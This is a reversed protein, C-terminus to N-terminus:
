DWQLTTRGDKAPALTKHNELYGKFVEDFTGPTATVSAADYYDAKLTGDWVAVKYTAADDIASGDSLTAAIVKSGLDNWPAYTTKLGSVAYVCDASKGGSGMPDDLAAKLQRGTMSVTVLTSKSDLSRPKLYTVKSDTIDGKYIRMVNGRYTVDDLVLAIDAGTKERFVDAFLESTELISFNESASALGTETQATPNDEAQKASADYDAIAQAATKTGATMDKIGARINITGSFVNAGVGDLDFTDKASIHGQDIVSQLSTLTAVGPVYPTTNSSILASTGIYTKQGETSSIYNVFEKIIETQKDSHSQKPVSTWYSTSKGVYADAATQGPFAMTAFQGDSPIEDLSHSIMAIKGAKFENMRTTASYDFNDSTIIGAAIFRQALDYLPEMHGTFTAKGASYDHYWTRNETGAMIQSYTMAELSASLEKPYKANINFPVVSGGTDATIRACLAIFDDTTAPVQWGYQDFLAKNYAIGSIFSPGPLFYVRGDQANKMLTETDFDGVCDYATLDEFYQSSNLVMADGCLLVDPTDGNELWEMFPHYKDNGGTLDLLIVQVDPYKEEFRTLTTVLNGSLTGVLAVTLQKKSSDPKEYTLIENDATLKLGKASGSETMQCGALLAVCLATVALGTLLRKM